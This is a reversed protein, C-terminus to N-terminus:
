RSSGMCSNMGARSISPSIKESAVTTIATSVPRVPKCDIPMSSTNTATNMRSNSCTRGISITRRFGSRTRSSISGGNSTAARNRWGSVPVSTRRMTSPRRSRSRCPASGAAAVSSSAPSAACAYRSAPSSCPRMSRSSRRSSCDITSKPAVSTRSTMVGRGSMTAMRASAVSSANRASKRSCSYERIGTYESFRSLMRPMTKTFSRIWSAPMSPCACGIVLRTRGTAKTGSVFRMGSSSFSNWRLCTCIAITTSSYPPVAPSTVSSSRRSSITPSIRSSYSTSVSGTMSSPLPDNTNLALTLM